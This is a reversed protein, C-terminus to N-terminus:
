LLARLSSVLGGDLAQDRPDWLTGSKSTALLQGQDLQAWKGMAGDQSWVDYAPRKWTTAAEWFDYEWAFLGPNGMNHTKLSLSCGSRSLPM